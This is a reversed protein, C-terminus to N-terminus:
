HARAHAHHAGEGTGESFLGSLAFAPSLGPQIPTDRIRISPRESGNRM